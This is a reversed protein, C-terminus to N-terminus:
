YNITIELKGEPSPIYVTEGDELITAEFGNVTVSRITNGDPHRFRIKLAPVSERTPIDIEARVQGNDVDSVITFSIDGYITPADEAAIVEGQELWSIPCGRTIWLCEEDEMVLMSRFLEIFWGATGNDPTDCIDFSDPHAHEWLQGNSGVMVALHNFFYRLFSPIDDELLYTDGNYSIKPLNSYTDWYWVDDKDPADSNNRAAQTLATLTSQLGAMEMADITGRMRSDNPDLVGGVKALFLSGQFLDIIGGAFQPDISEDGYNLLGGGYAMRPIFSYYFGDNGKRVPSILAERTVAALLDKEYIQAEEMFYDADPDGLDALTQAFQKLAIVHIANDHYYWQWDSAPLAYDGFMSPPMLGYVHLEERKAAPIEDSMYDRIMAVIWEAAEKLRPLRAELWETDGTMEYHQLIAYMIGGTSFHSGEHTFAMDHRMGTAWELAGQGTSFDGDPKVGKSKLFYNYISESYESLGVMEMALCARFVELGLTGWMNPGKLQEVVNAYLAQLDKDPVKFIVDPENAEPFGEFVTGKPCQWLRVNQIVEAFDHPEGFNEIRTRLSEKGDAIQKAIFESGTTKTMAPSFYLGAEPVYIPGKLLDKLNITAGLGKERDIIFTLRSELGYKSNSTYLCTIEARKGEIVPTSFYSVHNEIEGKWDPVSENLGWEVTMKMTKWKGLSDGTIHIEPVPTGEPAFVAIMETCAETKTNYSHDIELGSPPLYRYTRENTAGDYLMERDVTWGFWGWATPYTRVEIDSISPIETGEPWELEVTYQTLPGEWLLATLLPEEPAPLLEEGIDTQNAYFLSKAGEEGLDSLLTRYVEDIRKLRHPIFYAEATEQVALDSRWLYGWPSMDVSKGGLTAVLEDDGKVTIGQQGPDEDTESSDGSEIDHGTDTERSGQEGCSAFIQLAMILILISAILKKLM